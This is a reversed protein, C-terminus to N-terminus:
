RKKEVEMKLRALRDDWFRDFIALWQAARRLADANLSNIRERGKPIVRIVDGEELIKLHKAIAPRSVDFSAAIAGITMPKEALMSIIARRTPDALARFIPQPDSPQPM